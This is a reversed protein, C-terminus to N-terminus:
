INQETAFDTKSGGLCQPKRQRPLCVLTHGRASLGETNVANLERAKWPAMAQM